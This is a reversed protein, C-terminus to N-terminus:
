RSTFTISSSWMTFLSWSSRHHQHHHDDWEIITTIRYDVRQISRDRKPPLSGPIQSSQGWLPVATRFPNMASLFQHHQSAQKETIMYRTCSSWPSASEIAQSWIYTYSSPRDHHDTIVVSVHNHDHQLPSSILAPPHTIPSSPPSPSAIM